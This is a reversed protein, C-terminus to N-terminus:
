RIPTAARAHMELLRELSPRGPGRGDIRAMGCETAVAFDRGGSGVYAAEILQDVREDDGDYDIVGLALRTPALDKLPEFYAPARGTERDVPMHAFSIADAVANALQVCLSLDRPVAFHRNMYDGYCLHIGQEVGAPSRKFVDVLSAVVVDEQSLVGAAEMAGTLVGVEVAVDYQLLLDEGVIEAIAQVESAIANAYIPLFRVQDEDRVWAVVTAYPTPVSVQFKVGPAIAGEDRLRCFIPYSAEAADAYGLVRDPLREVGAGIALSPNEYYVEDQANPNVHTGALEIGGVATLRDLQWRVWQSREGTEGDVVAYLHRGLIGAAVRMAREADPAFLGGVLHAGVPAWGEDVGM